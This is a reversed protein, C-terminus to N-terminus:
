PQIKGKVARICLRVVVMHSRITRKGRRQPAELPPTLHCRFAPAPDIGHEVIFSQKGAKRAGPALSCQWPRGVKTEGVASPRQPSQRRGASLCCAGVHQCCQCSDDWGAQEPHSAVDGPLPRFRSGANVMPETEAAGVAEASEMSARLAGGTTRDAPTRPERDPPRGFTYM